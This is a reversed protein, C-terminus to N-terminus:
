SVPTLGEIEAIIELSRFPKKICKRIGCSDLLEAYEEKFYGTMAIIPVHQLSPSRSVGYAVEFGNMQPMKLDVLIVDVKARQAIEQVQKPDTTTILEYGSLSLIEELETLFDQDNDVILIKKNPM